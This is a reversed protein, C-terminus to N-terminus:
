VTIVDRAAWHARESDEIAKRKDYAIKADQFAEEATKRAYEYGIFGGCGGDGKGDPADVSYWFVEGKSWDSWTEVEAQLQDKVFSEPTGMLEMREATTFIVGCFSSDWECTFPWRREGMSFSVLSHDYMWVPYIEVAGHERRLADFADDANDYDAWDFGEVEQPLDYDNHTRCVIIGLNDYEKRPNFDYGCEDVHLECTVGNDDKWSEVAEM